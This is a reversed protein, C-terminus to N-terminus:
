GWAAGGLSRAVTFIGAGLGAAIPVTILWALVIGRVTEWRIATGSGTKSWIGV